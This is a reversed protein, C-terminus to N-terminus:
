KLVVSSSFLLLAAHGCHLVCLPEILSQVKIDKHRKNNCCISVSDSSNDKWLLVSLWRIWIKYDRNILRQRFLLRSIYSFTLLLQCAWRDADLRRQSVHRGPTKCLEMENRGCNTGRTTRVDELSHGRAEEWWHTKMWCVLSTICCM